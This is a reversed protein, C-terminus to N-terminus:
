APRIVSGSTVGIKPLLSAAAAAKNAPGAAGATASTGNTTTSCVTAVAVLRSYGSAAVTADSPTACEMGGAAWTIAGSTPRASNSAVMAADSLAACNTGGSAWVSTAAVAILGAPDSVVTTADSPTTCDGGSATWATTGPTPRISSSVAPLDRPMTTTTPLVLLSGGKAKNDPPLWEGVLPLRRELPHGGLVWCQSQEQEIISSLAQLSRSMPNEAANFAKFSALPAKRSIRM